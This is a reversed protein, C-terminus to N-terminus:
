KEFVMWKRFEAPDIEEVQLPTVPSYSVWQQDDIQEFSDAPLTYLYGAKDWNVETKKLRIRPPTVDTDVFFVADSATPVFTIAFPIAWEKVAVAYIATQCDADGGFGIAQKPELIGVRNRAGHYLIEPKSMYKGTVFNAIIM